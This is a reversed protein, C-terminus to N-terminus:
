HFFLFAINDRIIDWLGPNAYTQLLSMGKTFFSLIPFFMIVFVYDPIKIGTFLKVGMCVLLGSIYPVLLCLFMILDVTYADSLHHFLASKRTVSFLVPHRFIYFGFSILALGLYLFLLDLDLFTENKKNKIGAIV